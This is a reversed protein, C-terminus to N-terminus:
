AQILTGHMTFHEDSTMKLERAKRWGHPIVGAVVGRNRSFTL